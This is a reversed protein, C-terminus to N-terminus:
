GEIDLLFLLSDRDPFTYEIPLEARSILRFGVKRYFSHSRVALAPTDLIIQRLGIRKSFTLLTDFLKSSVGFERGRYPSDVFFKKLVGVNKEKKLLAITGIVKEVENIDKDKIEIDKEETMWNSIAARIGPIGKYLTQTFFARGEKNVINLYQQIQELTAISDGLKITFCVINLRTVSLLKYNKNQELKKSLLEALACNREVM